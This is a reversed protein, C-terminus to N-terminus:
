KTGTIILNGNAVEIKNIKINEAAPLYNDNLMNMLLSAFQDVISEPLNFPGVKATIIQYEPLNSGNAKLTVVLEFPLLIGNQEAKGSVAIKGERFEFNIDQIKPEKILSSNQNAFQTAQQETITITFANNDISIIPQTAKIIPTNTPAVTPTFTPTNTPKNNTKIGPFNCSSTNIMVFFVILLSYLFKNKM